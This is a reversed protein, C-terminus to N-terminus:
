FGSDFGEVCGVLIFGADFFILDNLHIACGREVEVM